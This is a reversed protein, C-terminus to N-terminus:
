VHKFILVKIYHKIHGNNRCGGGRDEDGSDERTIQKGSIVQSMM